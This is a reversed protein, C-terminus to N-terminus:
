NVRRGALRRRDDEIYVVDDHGGTAGQILAQANVLAWLRLAARRSRGGSGNAMSARGDAARKRSARWIQTEAM